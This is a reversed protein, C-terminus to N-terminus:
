IRGTNSKDGVSRCVDIATMFGDAMAEISYQSRCQASIDSARGIWEERYTWMEIMASALSEVDDTEFYRCNWGERALEIEPSHPETRSVIMPVGYGLSQTISLGVYGPSVSALANAYLRRLTEHDSVEGLFDVQERVDLDVSLKLLDAFLPGSGGITLRVTAPMEHRAKAFAQLLLEPKKDDVLRGVYVFAMRSDAGGVVEMDSKRLLANPAAVVLPTGNRCEQLQCQQSYTYVLLVDALRRLLRRLRNDQGNRGWAHGWLITKRKLMKRLLVIIWTNLIRPNLELIACRARVAPSIVSPQLLLRRGFLFVNAVSDMRIGPICSTKVSSYFYEDGCLVRLDMGLRDALEELIVRRYSPVVTQVLVVSGKAEHDSM